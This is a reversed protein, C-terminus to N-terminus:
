LGLDEEGEFTIKLGKEKLDNLYTAAFRIALQLAQLSDLGYIKDARDGDNGLGLLQVDCFFDGNGSTMPIGFRLTVPKKQQGETVEFSREAFIQSPKTSM